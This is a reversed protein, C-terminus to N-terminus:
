GQATGSAGYNLAIESLEKSRKLATPNEFEGCIVTRGQWKKAAEKTIKGVKSEDNSGYQLYIGDCPFSVGGIDDDGSHIFIPKKTHDDMRYLLERHDNSDPFTEKWELISVYRMVHEDVWPMISEVATIARKLSLTGHWDDAFMWLTVRMGRARAGKLAYLLPKRNKVSDIRYHAQGFPNDGHNMAFLDVDTYGGKALIDLRRDQGSEPYAPILCSHQVGPVWLFNSHIPGTPLPPGDRVEIFTKSEGPKLRIAGDPSSVMFRTGGPLTAWKGRRGVGVRKDGATLTIRKGM